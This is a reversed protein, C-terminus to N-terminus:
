RLDSMFHHMSPPRTGCARVSRSAGAAAPSGRGSATDSPSSGWMEACPAPRGSGCRCAWRAAWVPRSTRTGPGAMTSSPRWGSAWSAGCTTPSSCEAVLVRDELALWAMHTGTFEHIGFVRPGNQTLWLDFEGGPKARRLQAGEVHLILTQRPLNQSAVTFAGAVRGSDPAGATLVGNAAARLVAFGRRWPAALQASLEPGVGAQGSPYGWARPAAWVGIHLLQSIDVDERRAYSNFRELVQFRVHGVDMGVGVTGFVSRPFATTGVSDFNERRWQGVLWLRVYDETTVRPAFGATLGFWLARREVQGQSFRTTDPVGDRFLLVRESAAEGDTTLAHRAATEYFPVGVLWTGRNGDSKNSYKAQLWGRRSLFHPNVHGLDFTRRDPTNNYVAALATATGLLNDEVLGVMWTVDGGASSYGLQPKTSWGDTTAIRLALRGDLRTTDIRVRSFVNLNRLARESEAVRASDYRDGPNVLLTSRIVGARTRAHLRNALRAIFRPADAAQLDFVNRNVVIITDIRPAPAQGSLRVPPGATLLAAITGVALGGSRWVARNSCTL